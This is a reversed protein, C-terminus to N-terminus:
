QQESTNNEGTIRLHPAAVGAASHWILRNGSGSITVNAARDLQLTLTNDAGSLTVEGSGSAALSGTLKNGSGSLAISGAAAFDVSQQVGAVDLSACTETLKIGHQVGEITVPRDACSLDLLQNYGDILLPEAAALGPYTLVACALARHFPIM